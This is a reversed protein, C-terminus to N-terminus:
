VAILAGHGMREGKKQCPHSVEFRERAEQESDQVTLTKCIIEGREAMILVATAGWNTLSAGRGYGRFPVGM